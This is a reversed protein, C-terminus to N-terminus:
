KKKGVICRVGYRYVSQSESLIEMSGDLCPFDKIPPIIFKYANFSSLHILSLPITCPSYLSSFIHTRPIRSTSWCSLWGAFGLDQACLSRLFFFFLWNEEAIRSTCFHDCDGSYGAPTNPSGNAFKWWRVSNRINKYILMCKEFGFIRMKGFLDVGM